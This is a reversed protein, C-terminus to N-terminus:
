MMFQHRTHLFSQFKSYFITYEKLACEQAKIQAELENIHLGAEFWQKGDDSNLWKRLENYKEERKQRQAEAHRDFYAM